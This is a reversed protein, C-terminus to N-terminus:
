CNMQLSLKEKEHIIDPGMQIPYITSGLWEVLFLYSM